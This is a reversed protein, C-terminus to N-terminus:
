SEDYTALKSHLATVRLDILGEEELPVAHVVRSGQKERKKVVSDFQEHVSTIRVAHTVVHHTGNEGGWVNKMLFWLRQCKRM